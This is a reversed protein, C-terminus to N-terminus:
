CQPRTRGRGSSSSATRDPWTTGCPACASGTWRSRSRISSGPPRCRAASRGRSSSPRWRVQVQYRFLAPDGGHRFASSPDTRFSVDYGSREGHYKVWNQAAPIGSLTCRQEAERLLIGDTVINGSGAVPVFQKAQGIAFSAYNNASV